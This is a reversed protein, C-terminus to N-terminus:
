SRIGTLDIICSARSYACPGGDVGILDPFIARAEEFSFAPKEGHRNASTLLIPSGIERLISQCLAHDPVRVGIKVNDRTNMLITFPGPLLAQICMRVYLDDTLELPQAVDPYAYTIPKYSSQGKLRDLHERHQPLAGLGYVTETPIIWVKNDKLNLFKNSM